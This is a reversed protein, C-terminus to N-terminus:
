FDDNDYHKCSSSVGIFNNFNNIIIRKVHRRGTGELKCTPKYYSSLYWDNSPCYFGYLYNADKGTQKECDASIKIQLNSQLSRFVYLGSGGHPGVVKHHCVQTIHNHVFICRTATWYVLVPKSTNNIVHSITVGFISGSGSILLLLFVFKNFFKM